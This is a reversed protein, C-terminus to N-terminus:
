PFALLQVQSGSAINEAPWRLYKKFLSREDGKVVQVMVTKSAKNNNNNNDDDDNNNSNNNNNNDSYIFSIILLFYLGQELLLARSGLNFTTSTYIFM